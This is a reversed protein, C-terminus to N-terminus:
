VEVPINNTPKEEHDKGGDDIFIITQHNDIHWKSGINIWNRTVCMLGHLICLMMTRRSDTLSVTIHFRGQSCLDFQFSKWIYKRAYYHM